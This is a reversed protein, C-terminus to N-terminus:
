GEGGKKEDALISEVYRVIREYEKGVEYQFGRCQMNKDFAKYSKIVKKNM